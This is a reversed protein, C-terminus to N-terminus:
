FKGAAQGSSNHSVRMQRKGGSFPSTRPEAMGDRTLVSHQAERESWCLAAAGWEHDM